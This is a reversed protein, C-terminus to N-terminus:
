PRRSREPPVESDYGSRAPRGAEFLEVMREMLEDFDQWPGAPEAAARRPAADPHSSRKVSM